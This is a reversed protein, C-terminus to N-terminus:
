KSGKPQSVPPFPIEASVRTGKGPISDIKFTGGVMEVRERM